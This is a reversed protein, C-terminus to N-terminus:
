NAKRVSFEPTLPPIFKELETPSAQMAALIHTPSLRGAAIEEADRQHIRDIFARDWEKEADFHHGFGRDIFPDIINAFAFFARFHFNKLLLPLVDQARIGEFGQNSCDWNEYLEEHRNLQLNFRYSSPMERWFEHVLKAAEPWRMHGNRGIMDSTLFVGDTGLAERVASFVTELQEIHHLSQNAIVAAYRKRPKWTNLDMLVPLVQRGVGQSEALNAGRELMEANIDLCEITFNQLGQDVLMRALRVETDCNGAGISLFSTNGDPNQRLKETLYLCFFSDPCTFGFPQWAPLLYKNSWYHYIPPLDHVNLVASFTRREAELKEAYTPEVHKSRSHAYSAHELAESDGPGAHDTELQSSRRSDSSSENSSRSDIEGIRAAKTLTSRVKGWISV